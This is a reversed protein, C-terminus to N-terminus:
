IHILSLYLTGGEFSSAKTLGTATPTGKGFGSLTLFAVLLLGLTAVRRGSMLAEKQM